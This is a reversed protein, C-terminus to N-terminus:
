DSTYMGSVIVEAEATVNAYRSRALCEYGGADEVEIQHFILTAGRMDVRRHVFSHLM